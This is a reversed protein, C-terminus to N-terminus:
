AFAVGGWGHGVGSAQQGAHALDPSALLCAVRKQGTAVAHMAAAACGACGCRKVRRLAAEAWGCYVAAQEDPHVCTGAGAVAAAGAAAAASALATAGGGPAAAAALKSGLARAEVYGAPLCGPQLDLEQPLPHRPLPIFAPLNQGM